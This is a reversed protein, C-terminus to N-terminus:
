NYDWINCIDVIPLPEFIAHFQATPGTTGNGLKLARPVQM